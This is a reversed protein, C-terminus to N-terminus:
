RQTAHIGGPRSRLLPALLILAAIAHVMGGPVWMLVGALQQDEAPTLGYPNLGIDAYGRYWPSQSVAMFAGLAGSVLSTAFLGIAAQGVHRRRDLMSSWFLLATIVFSAHQAVHWGESALARDFLAPAHWLWLAAAQLLTATAPDSLGRWVGAVVRQRAIGGLAQRGGQPFAWLMVPLPRSLVLIPAALLMMLEHEAMHAAFSRRGAEHLPSMVAVAMVLLGAHFLVVQRRLRGAGQGSRGRLRLWGTDFLALAVVIPAVVWPEFSWGPAESPAAVHALAVTPALVLTLALGIRRM